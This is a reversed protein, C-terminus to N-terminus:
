FCIMSQSVDTAVFVLIPVGKASGWWGMLAPNMRENEKKEFLANPVSINWHKWCSSQYQALHTHM